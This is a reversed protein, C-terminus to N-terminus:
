NVFLSARKDFYIKNIVIMAASGILSGIVSPSMLDGLGIGTNASSLVVAVAILYIVSIAVVLIYLITLKQPAGKKLKALEFRVYVGYIAAGITALGFLIDIVKLSGFYAYVLEAAGDYQAGTLQMIGSILNLVAGAFLAFYILFKYWNMPLGNYQQNVPNASQAYGYQQNAANNPQAYGYQQPQTSYALQPEAKSISAGCNPCFSANDQIQSGCQNCFM